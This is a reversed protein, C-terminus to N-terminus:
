RHASSVDAGISLGEARGSQADSATFVAVHPQDEIRRSAESHDDVALMHLGDVKWHRGLQRGINSSIYDICRQPSRGLSLGSCVLRRGRHEGGLSHEAEAARGGLAGQAAVATAMRGGLGATDVGLAAMTSSPGLGLGAAPLMAVTGGGAGALNAALSSYPHADSFRSDEVQQGAMAQDYSKGSLAADTAADASDAWAGVIPVANAAARVMDNAYHGARKWWPDSSSDPPPAAAAPDFGSGPPLGQASVPSAGSAPMSAAGSPILDGFLNGAAAPAAAPPAGGTASAVPILDDFLGPM